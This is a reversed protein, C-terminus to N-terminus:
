FYKIIQIDTIIQIDKNRGYDNYLPYFIPKNYIPLFHKNVAFTVPNLRTGLGGALLIGKKAMFM